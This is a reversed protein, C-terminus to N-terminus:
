QESTKGVGQIFKERCEVSCFFYAEGDIVEKIGDRRPIYTQCFPDKVMIDDVPTLHDQKESRSSSPNPALFGKLVRYGLYVLLCLLLFRM